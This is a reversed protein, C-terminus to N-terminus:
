LMLPSTAIVNALSLYSSIIAEGYFLAVFFGLMLMPGFPIHAGRGIKKTLLGPLVLLLGFVNALFLTLFALQWDGLLLGLALGLKVDGFGVWMGKSVTWLFFYLGGLILIAGSTSLLSSVFDQSSAIRIIAVLTALGILPFMMVDPLLFWKADYVFLVVMLVLVVLWVTFISWSLVTTGQGALWYHLFLGFLVATGIELAPEFWGIPKKCYRCKGATSVWSVIPLLDYWALEHHCRLCQSRDDKMSKKTLPLLKKLEQKSYEEGESKDEVLQHARLRWVQAGAFSGFVLGLFCVIVYGYFILMTVVNYM